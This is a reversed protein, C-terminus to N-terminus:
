HPTNKLTLYINLMFMTSMTTMRRGSQMVEIDRCITNCQLGGKIFKKTGEKMIWDPKRFTWDSKHVSGVPVHVTGDPLIVGM